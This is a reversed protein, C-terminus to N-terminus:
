GVRNNKILLVVHVVGKSILSHVVMSYVRYTGLLPNLLSWEPILCISWNNCSKIQNKNKVNDVKM